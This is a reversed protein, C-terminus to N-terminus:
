SGTGGGPMCMSTDFVCLVPDCALIGGGLGLSACDFGQLNMGDCQEGPEVVGNGCGPGVVGCGSTDFGLCDPTCTLLGEGLGLAACALAIALRRPHM